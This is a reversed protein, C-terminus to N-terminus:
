LVSAQLSKQVADRVISPLLSYPLVPLGYTFTQALQLHTFLDDDQGCAYCWQQKMLHEALYEQETQGPTPILIAKKQAALIEMVTTYGSRSVIYESQTIATQIDGTPLHNFVVCGDPVQLSSSGGPLGRILVINGELKPILLLVKKELLTRQPEPGSLLFLWQNKIKQEVKCVRALAGIYIVPISPLKRPHSLAGAMNPSSAYDPVWCQAFRNIFRYNIQQVVFSLWRVPMQIFLQHTIFICQTKADVLGYRNDSIILDFHHNAVAKKLWRHEHAVSSLIKPIQQLIKFAFRRKSSAYRINYGRLYLFHVDPFEPSLLLQATENCAVYVACGEALLAKIIPISRTAHGLGWDLPSVLVRTTNKKEM